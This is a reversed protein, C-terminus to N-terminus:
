QISGNDIEVMGNIINILTTKGVGNRGVVGMHEGPNLEFNADTYLVKNKISYKLDNVALIAM